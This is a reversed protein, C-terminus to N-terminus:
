WKNLFFQINWTWHGKKLNVFYSCRPSILFGPTGIYGLGGVFFVEFTINIALSIGFNLKWADELLNWQWLTSMYLICVFRNCKMICSFHFPKFKPQFFIHFYYCTQGSQFRFNSLFAVYIVRTTSVTEALSTLGTRRCVRWPMNRLM